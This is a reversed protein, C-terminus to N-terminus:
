YNIVEIAPSLATVFNKVTIPSYVAQLCWIEAEYASLLRFGRPTAVLRSM